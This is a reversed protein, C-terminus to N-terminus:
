RFSEFRNLSRVFDVLFSFNNDDSDRIYHESTLICVFHVELM